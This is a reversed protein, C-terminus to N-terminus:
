GWVLAGLRWVNLAMGIPTQFCSKFSCYGAFLCYLVLHPEDTCENRKACPLRRERPTKRGKVINKDVEGEHDEFEWLLIPTVFEVDSQCSRGM